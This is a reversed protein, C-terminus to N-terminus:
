MSFWYEGIDCSVRFFYSYVLMALKKERSLIVFFNLIFIFLDGVLGVGAALGWIEVGGSIAKGNLLGRQLKWWRTAGLISILISYCVCVISLPKGILLFGFTTSPNPARQIVTLQAIVAGLM